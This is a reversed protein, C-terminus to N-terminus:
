PRVDYPRDPMVGNGADGRWHERVWTLKGSACIRLHQRCMHLARQGTMAQGDGGDAKSRHVKLIIKSAPASKVGLAKLKRSVTFSPKIQEAEIIRPSNIVSISAQQWAVFGMAADMISDQHQHPCLEAGREAYLLATADMGDQGQQIRYEQKARIVGQDNVFLACYIGDGGDWFLGGEPLKHGNTHEIFISPFPLRETAELRQWGQKIKECLGDVIGQVETIQFVRAAFLAHIIRAAKVQDKALLAEVCRLYFPTM